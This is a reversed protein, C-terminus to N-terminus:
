LNYTYIDFYTLYGAFAGRDVAAFFPLAGEVKPFFVTALFRAGSFSDTGTVGLFDFLNELFV